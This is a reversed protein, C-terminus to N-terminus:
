KLSSHGVVLNWSRRPAMPSLTQSVMVNRDSACFRDPLGVIVCHAILDEMAPTRKQLSLDQLVESGIWIEEPEYQRCGSDEKEYWSSPFTHRYLVDGKDNSTVPKYLPNLALIGEAHPWDGFPGQDILIDENNTAVISFWPDQNLAITTSSRSLDPGCKEGYRDLVDQNTILRHPTPSMLLGYASYPIRQSVYNELDVLGNHIGAIIILGNPDVIRQVERSCVVKNPVMYLTDSSYVTSFFHDIFPFATSGDCCVYSVEPAFFSKAIYLRTFDRDAGVVPQRGARRILHRTLHGFGCGFDLVPGAPDQVSTMLSLAVLHRPQGFRNMFYHYHKYQRKAGLAAGIYDTATRGEPGVAFFDRMSRVWRPRAVTGIWSKVRDIGKIQPLHQVWAPALDGGVPTPPLVLSLFAEQYKGTLILQTVKKSTEGHNGIVGKQIVPIDEVVPYQECDCELVAYEEKEQCVNGRLVKFEGFCYPCRLTDVLWKNM